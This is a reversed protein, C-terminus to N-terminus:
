PTVRFGNKIMDDYLHTGNEADFRKTIEVLRRFLEM